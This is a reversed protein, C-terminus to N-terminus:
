PTERNPAEAFGFSRRWSRRARHVRRARVTASLEARLAASSATIETAECRRPGSRGQRRRQAQNPVGMRLVYLVGRQMFTDYSLGM